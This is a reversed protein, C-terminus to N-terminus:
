LDELSYPMLMITIDLETGATQTVMKQRLRADMCWDVEFRYLSDYIQHESWAYDREYVRGYTEFWAYGRYVRVYEEDVEVEYPSFGDFTVYANPAGTLFESVYSQPIYAFYDDAVPIDYPAIKETLVTSFDGGALGMTYRGLDEGGITNFAAMRAWPSTTDEEVAGNRKTVNHCYGRDPIGINNYSYEWRIDGSWVQYWAPKFGLGHKREYVLERYVGSVKNVGYLARKEYHHPYDDEPWIANDINSLQSGTPVTPEAYGPTRSSAFDNTITDSIHVTFYTAPKKGLAFGLMPNKADLVVGSGTTKKSKDRMMKFGYDAM